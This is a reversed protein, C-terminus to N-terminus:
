RLEVHAVPEVKGVKAAVRRGTGATAEVAELGVGHEVNPGLLCVHARTLVKQLCGCSTCGCILGMGKTHIEGKKNSLQLIRM